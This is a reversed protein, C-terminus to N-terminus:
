LLAISNLPHTTKIGCMRQTPNVTAINYVALVQLHEQADV